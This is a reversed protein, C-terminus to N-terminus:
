RVDLGRERRLRSLLGQDFRRARTAEPTQDLHFAVLRGEDGGAGALLADVAELSHTTAVVQVDYRAAAETLWKFVRPLASVHVGTEAEDIFLLGRRLTTVTTALLVVRRLADGFVSLPAPGLRRHVVYLSPRAGRFSAVEISEVEPDFQRVLELAEGRQALRSESYSRVQLRNVQYSYPTLTETPLHLSERRGIPRRVFSDEEWVVTRRRRDTPAVGEFEPTHILEGGRLPQPVDVDPERIRLRRLRATLREIEPDAPDGLVDRYDVRLRRLPFQGRCTMECSAEIMADPTALQGTQHFCWRLSQVRTEDLGGFDRRRVLLLWESPQLPNCLISMAELVSTKGSNNEGVLVTVLGLGDLNLHRLGRFGHITVADLSYTPM